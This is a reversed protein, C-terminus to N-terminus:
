SLLFQPATALKSHSPYEETQVYSPVLTRPYSPVLAVGGDRYVVSNQTLQLHLCIVHM